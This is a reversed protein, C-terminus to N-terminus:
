NLVCKCNKEFVTIEGIVAIAAILYFDDLALIALVRKCHKIRRLMAYRSLKNVYIIISLAENTLPM